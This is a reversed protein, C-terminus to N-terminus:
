LRILKCVVQFSVPRERTGRQINALPTTDTGQITKEVGEGRSPSPFARQGEGKHPLSFAARVYARRWAGISLSVRREGVEQRAPRFFPITLSSFERVGVWSPGHNRHKHGSTAAEDAAVEDVVYQFVFGINMNDVKVGQGVGAIQRVQRIHGVMWAITEYMTIDGVAVDHPGGHLPDMADDMKGGLAVNIAANEVGTWKDAGVNQSRLHQEVRGASRANFAENM